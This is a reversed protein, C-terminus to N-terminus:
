LLARGICVATTLSCLHQTFKYRRGEPRCTNVYSNVHDDMNADGSDFVGRELPM